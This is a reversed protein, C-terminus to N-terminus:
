GPWPETVLEFRGFDFPEGPAKEVQILRERLGAQQLEIARHHCYPM